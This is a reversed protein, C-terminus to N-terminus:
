TVEVMEGVPPRIPCESCCVLRNLRTSLPCFLLSHYVACTAQLM